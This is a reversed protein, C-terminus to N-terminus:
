LFLIADFSGKTSRSGQTPSAWLRLDRRSEDNFVLRSSDVSRQRSRRRLRHRKRRPPGARARRADKKLTLGHRRFFRSVLSTDSKDGREALMRDCLAQLTIDSKEARLGELFARHPQLGVRKYGGMQAARHSGSREFREMWKIASSESAGFRAAAGRRSMGDVVVANIV